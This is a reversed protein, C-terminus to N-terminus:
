ITSIDLVVQGAVQGSEVRQHALACADLPYREAVEVQLTQERLVRQAQELGWARDEPLLDYVLFFKLGYSSFLLPRFTLSMEGPQNSGYGILQGHPKLVGPEMWRVTSSFDMDVIVDVGEGKSFARVAEPVSDTKYNVCAQIGAQQAMEARRASGVTGIVQAGAQVCLQAVLHGVSTGAGIVLVRQGPQLKALRLAQLATLVPIGVCAAVAFDTAPDMAVAQASPVVIFEAATGLPRQWQGNWIWVAQGVRDRAVGEGVADIVGAGDSHPVIRAASLPRSQRSKVDSPNVGSTVLRVRVEGPGPEPTPLEGVVLVSDAPGNREYWVAKM